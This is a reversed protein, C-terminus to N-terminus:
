VLIALKRIICSVLYFNPNDPGKFSTARHIIIWFKMALICTLSYNVLKAQRQYAHNDDVVIVPAKQLLGGVRNKFLGVRVHLANDDVVSRGIAACTNKEM